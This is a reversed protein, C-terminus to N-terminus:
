EIVKCYKALFTQRIYSKFNECRHSPLINDEPIYSWTTQHFGVSMKSSYLGEDEPDFFWGLLFGAHFCTALLAISHLDTTTENRFPFAMNQDTAVV